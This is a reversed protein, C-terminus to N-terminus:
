TKRMSPFMRAARAADPDAPTTTSSAGEGPNLTSEGMSKGIAQFVKLVQADGMKGALSDIMEVPVGFTQMARRGLEVNKDFQGGWETRLTGIEQEAKQQQAVQASQAQSAQFANWQEALKQGAAVPIGAEHMWAAAQKAFEGAQGEPVPLKYDDASAPAAYKGELEQLAKVAEGADKFQKGDVYQRLADDTISQTWDAASNQSDAPPTAPPTVPQTGAGAGEGGTEEAMLRYHKRKM